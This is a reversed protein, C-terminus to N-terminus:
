DKKENSEEKPAELTEEGSEAEEQLPIEEAQQKQVANEKEQVFTDWEEQLERDKLFEFAFARFQQIGQQAHEAHQANRRGEQILFQMTDLLGQPGGTMDNEKIWEEM